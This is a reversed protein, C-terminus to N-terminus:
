KQKAKDVPSEKDVLDYNVKIRVRSKVARGHRQAPTFRANRFAETASQDFMGPPYSEEVSLDQVRGSEDLLLVLVVSIRIRGEGALFDWSPAAFFAFALG